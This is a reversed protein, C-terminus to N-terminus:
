PKNPDGPPASAAKRASARSKWIEYKMQQKFHQELILRQQPPLNKPIKEVNLRYKRIILNPNNQQDQQGAIASPALVLGLLFVAITFRIKM